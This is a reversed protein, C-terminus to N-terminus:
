WPVWACSLVEAARVAGLDPVSGVAARIQDIRALADDAVVASWRGRARDRAPILGARRARSFQWQELGLYTALQVPGYDRRATM